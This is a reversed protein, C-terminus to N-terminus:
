SKDGAGWSSPSPPCAPSCTTQYPASPSAENCHVVICAVLPLEHASVALANGLVEDTVVIVVAAIARILGWLTTPTWPIPSSLLHRIEQLVPGPLWM